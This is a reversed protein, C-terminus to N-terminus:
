QFLIRWCQVLRERLSPKPAGGLVARGLKLSPKYGIKCEWDPAALPEQACIDDIVQSESRDDPVMNNWPNIQRNFRKTREEVSYQYTIFSQPTRDSSNFRDSLIKLDKNYNALIKDRINQIQQADM